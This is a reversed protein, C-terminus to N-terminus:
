FKMDMGTEQENDPVCDLDILADPVWSPTYEPKLEGLFDSRQFYGASGNKLFVGLVEEGTDEACYLMQYDATPCSERLKEIDLVLLREELSGDGLDFCAEKPFLDQEQHKRVLDTFIDLLGPHGQILWDGKFNILLPAGGNKETWEKNESSIRGDYSLHRINYALVFDVRNFGFRDLVEKACDANLSYGDYNEAITKGIARACEANKRNSERYADEAGLEAAEDYSLVCVYIKGNM